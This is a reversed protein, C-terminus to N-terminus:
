WRVHVILPRRRALSQASWRYAHGILHAQVLLAFPWLLASALLLAPVQWDVPLPLLWALSAPAEEVVFGVVAAAVWIAPAARLHAWLRAVDLAALASGTAAFRALCVATLVAGLLAAVLHTPGHLAAVLAPATETAGSDPLKESIPLAWLPLTLLGAALGGVITLVLCKLGLLLTAGDWRVTPLPADEDGDLVARLARLAWASLMLPGLIPVCAAAGAAGLRLPWRRDHFIDTLARRLHM